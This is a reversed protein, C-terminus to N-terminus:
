LDNRIGRRHCCFMLDLAGQALGAFRGRPKWSQSGWLTSPGELVFPERITGSRPEGQRSKARGLAEPHIKTAMRPNSAMRM